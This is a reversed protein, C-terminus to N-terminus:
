RLQGNWLPPIGREKRHRVVTKSNVGALRAIEVDHRRGLMKVFQAPLEKKKGGLWTVKAKRGKARMDAENEKCTGLFLHAPKVCLPVDCKHLVWLGKPVPSVNLEFSFRHASELGRKGYSIAGYGNSRKPGTWLWCTETKKIRSWFREKTQDCLPIKLM